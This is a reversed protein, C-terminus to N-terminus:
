PQAGREVIARSEALVATWIRRLAARDFGPGATALVRALMAEERAPDVAPLGRGKKWAAIRACLRAREQLVSQLRENVADMEARLRDLEDDAATM